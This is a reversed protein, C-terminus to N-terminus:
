GAPDFTPPVVTGSGGISRRASEEEGEGIEPRCCTAFIAHYDIAGDAM